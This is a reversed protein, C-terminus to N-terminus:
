SRPRARRVRRRLVAVGALVVVGALGCGAALLGPGSSSVLAAPRTSVQGQVHAGAVPTGATLAAPAAAGPRTGNRGPLTAVTTRRKPAAAAAGATPSTTVTVTAGAAGVSRVTVTLGGPLPVAVGVPLADQLDAEWGARASPTGDLLLSTDPLSGARHLLVGPQLGVRDASTGLWADLGTAARYELWYVTDGDTLRLGRVGDAGGLPALAVTGGPGAADLTRQEADPLVGLLAQQAVTLTGLQEWSAGMVDYYDRYPQTSCAADAADARDVVADCQRGSSHGLGLNHGLEHAILSPLTDRVYLSGGGHLGTGVQALGYSCGALDGPASSVYVLLHRGPGATFGAATAAQSWLETPNACTATTRVWGRTAAVGFRVAGDTEQSWFRQVPGDVARVLQDVTTGDRDAGPPQVLVVTVNDTVGPAPTLATTATDPDTGDTGGTGANSGANAADGGTAARAIVQSRVVSHAPDYGDASAADTVTAGVRVSVTSGAPVDGLGATDVRVADGSAPQVWSLPASAAPRDQDASEPWAQVLSGVVTTGAVPDGGAAAAPAAVAVPLAAAALAVALSRLLSAMGEQM